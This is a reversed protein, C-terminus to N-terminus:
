KIYKYGTMKGLQSELHSAVNVSKWFLFGWLPKCFFGLLFLKFWEFILNEGDHKKLVESLELSLVSKAGAASVSVQARANRLAEIGDRGQHRQPNSCHIRQRPIQIAISEFPKLLQGGKQRRLLLLYNKVTLASVFGWCCSPLLESERSSATRHNPPSRGTM